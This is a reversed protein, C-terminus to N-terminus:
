KGARCEGARHRRLTDYGVGLGIPKAALYRRIAQTHIGADKFTAAWSRREATTLTAMYACLACVGGRRNTRDFQAIAARLSSAAMKKPPSSRAKTKTM